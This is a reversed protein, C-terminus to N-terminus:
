SQNEGAGSMTPTNSDRPTMQGSTSSAMQGSTSSTELLSSLGSINAMDGLDRECTTPLVQHASRIIDSVSQQQKPHHYQHQQQYRHQHNPHQHQQHQQQPYQHPQLQTNPLHHSLQTPGQPPPPIQNTMSSRYREVYGCDQSQWISATPPKTSKWLDPAPQWQEAPKPSSSFPPASSPQFSSSRSPTVRPPEEEDSDEMAEELIRSIATRAKKFKRESLNLLTGKVYNGFVEAPTQPRMAQQLQIMQQGSEQLREQLTALVTDELKTSKRKRGANHSSKPAQEEEETVEMGDLACETEAASLDGSNANITDKVSSLPEPRHYVIKQLFQFKKLTWLERETFVRQGSGSKPIKELRTFNDRMGRFWGQLHSVEKSMTEAQKQWAANKLDTRRYNMVKKNWLMEHEELFAVMLEEEEDSLKNARKERKKGKKPLIEAVSSVHSALSVHSDVSGTHSHTPSRQPSSSPFSQADVVDGHELAVDPDLSPQRHDLNPTLEHDLSTERHDPNPILEHDQSPQQTDPNPNPLEKNGRRGGRGRGKRRGGTM